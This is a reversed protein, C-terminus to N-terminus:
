RQMAHVAALIASKAQDDLKRWEELLRKEDAAGVTNIEFPHGEGRVIWDASCQLAAAVRLLTEANPRRTSDTVINSISAQTRKILAALETQKMKRTELLWRLREGVSVSQAWLLFHPDLKGENAIRPPDKKM